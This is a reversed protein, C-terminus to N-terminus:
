TMENRNLSYPKMKEVKRYKKYVFNLLIDIRKKDECYISKRKEVM